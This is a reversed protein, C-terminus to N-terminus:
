TIRWDTLQLQYTYHSPFSSCSNLFANPWYISQVLYNEIWSADFLWIYDSAIGVTKSANCGGTAAMCKLRRYLTTMFHQSVNLPRSIRLGMPSHFRMCDHRVSWKIPRYTTTSCYSFFLIADENVQTTQSTNLAASTSCQIRSSISHLLLMVSMWNLGIVSQYMTRFHDTFCEM